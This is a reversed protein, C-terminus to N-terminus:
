WQTHTHQIWYIILLLKINLLLKIINICGLEALM